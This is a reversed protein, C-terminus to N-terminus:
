KWIEGSPFNVIFHTEIKFRMNDTYPKAFMLFQPDQFKMFTRLDVVSFDQNGLLVGEM